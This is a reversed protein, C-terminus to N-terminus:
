QQNILTVDIKSTDGQGKVKFVLQRNSQKFM